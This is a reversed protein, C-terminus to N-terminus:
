SVFKEASEEGKGSSIISVKIFDRLAFVPTNLKLCTVVAAWSAPTKTRRRRDNPKYGYSSSARFFAANANLVFDSIQAPALYSESLTDRNLSQKVLLNKLVM